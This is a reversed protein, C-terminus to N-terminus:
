RTQTDDCLIGEYAPKVAFRAAVLHDFRDEGPEPEHDDSRVIAARHFRVGPPVHVGDGVICDTLEAGGGITVDDWLITRVVRASAAVNCRQGVLRSPGGELGAMRLSTVLYDAPTGIDQFGAGCVFARVSGPHDAILRPYLDGVTDAPRDVPLAAFV